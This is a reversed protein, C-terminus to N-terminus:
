LEHKIPIAYICQDNNVYKQSIQQLKNTICKLRELQNSISSESTNPNEISISKTYTERAKEMNKHYAKFKDAIRQLIKNEIKIDTHNEIQKVNLHPPQIIDLREDNRNLPSTQISVDVCKSIKDDQKSHSLRNLIEKIEHMQQKLKQEIEIQQNTEKEKNQLANDVKRQLTSIGLKIDSTQQRAVSLM